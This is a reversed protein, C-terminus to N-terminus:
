THKGRTDVLVCRCTWPLWLVIIRVDPWQLRVFDYCSFMASVFYAVVILWATPWVHSNGHTALIRVSLLVTVLRPHKVRTCFVFVLVLNKDEPCAGIDAYTERSLFLQILLEESRGWASPCNSPQVWSSFILVPTSVLTISVFVNRCLFGWFAIGMGKVEGPHSTLLRYGLLSLYLPPFSVEFCARWPPCSLHFDFWIKNM